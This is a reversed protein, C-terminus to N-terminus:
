VAKNLVAVPPKRAAAAIADIANRVPTGTTTGASVVLIVIDVSHALMMSTAEHTAPESDIVILNYEDKAEALLNQFQMTELLQNAGPQVGHVLLCDLPSAPDHALLESWHDRGELTDVLGNSPPMQLAQALSPKRLDGEILLARVGDMAAVRAFAAAVSSAGEGPTSSVFLVTRPVAGSCTFRMRARLSRLAEAEAGAPDALVRAALSVGRGAVKPVVTLTALGAERTLENSSTFPHERGRLAVALLGGFAFGSLLGLGAAVKPRPSIPMSTPVALSVIRAGTQEPGDKASTQEASQLLSQYLTRRADADKELQQLEAQVAALSSARQQADALQRKLDAEHARAAEVQSGLSITVRRAEGALANRASALEAQAALLVPHGPGLTTSLQAVRREAAAERERLQGVTSSKLVEASDEAVGGARALVLARQYNAELQTRDGAAKTVAAALDELQQQGVSGARTQVLHYQQRREQIKHELADVDARVEKLRETLATNAQRNAAERANAKDDLYRELLANTIRSALEPNEATFQVNIILSRGDNEITLNRTMAAVVRETTSDKAAGGVSRPWLIAAIPGPIADKIAQTIRDRLSPPELASNFEPYTELHLREAVSQLLARSQLVLAESRVIPMPDPLADSSLAGQLQPIALSRVDVAVTASAAYKKPLCYRSYAFAGAAFLFGCLVIIPWGRRLATLFQGPSFLDQVSTNPQSDVIPQDVAISAM